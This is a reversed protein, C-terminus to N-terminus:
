RQRGKNAQSVLGLLYGSVESAREVHVLHASPLVHIM